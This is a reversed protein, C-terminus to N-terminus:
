KGSFKKLSNVHLAEREGEFKMLPVGDGCSTMVRTIKIKFLQRVIERPYSDFYQKMLNNFDEMGKSVTVGQGFARLLLPERDFSCWMLTIKNNGALDKATDNGSGYYDLYVLNTHDVIKLTEYGKPAIHVDDDGSPATGVFFIKQANIFDIFRDSLKDYNTAM